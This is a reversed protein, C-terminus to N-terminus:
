GFRFVGTVVLCAIYAANGCITLCCGCCWFPFFITGCLMLIICVIFGLQLLSNFALIVSWKTDNVEGDAGVPIGCIDYASVDTGTVKIKDDYDMAQAWLTFYLGCYTACVALPLLAFLCILGRLCWIHEIKDGASDHM